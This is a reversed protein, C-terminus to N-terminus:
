EHVAGDMNQLARPKASPVRIQAIFDETDASRAAAAWSKPDMCLRWARLWDAPQPVGGALLVEDEVTRQLLVQVSAGPHHHAQVALKHVTSDAHETVHNSASNAHRVEHCAFKTSRMTGLKKSRRAAPSGSKQCAASVGRLSQMRCGVRRGVAFSARLAVRGKGSVASFYTIWIHRM